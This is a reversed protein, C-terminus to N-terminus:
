DVLRVQDVVLVLAWGVMVKMEVGRIFSVQNLSPLLIHGVQQLTDYKQM